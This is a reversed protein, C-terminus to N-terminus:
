TQKDDNLLTKIRAKINEFTATLQNKGVETLLSTHALADRLPKYEKAKNSISANDNKNKDVMNALYNMDLYLTDNNNRRIDISLGAKQKNESEQKKYKESEKQAEDTLQISKDAIYKRLLNESIFCEGYSTFNYQADEGLQNVWNDVKKNYDSSEKPRVYDESIVDFLEKSKRQKKTIRTNESDGDQKNKVRWEDWREIIKPFINTKLEELLSQYLNDDPVIGERSSTFRDKDDDLINFHIQGYLYNEVIRATSINNIMNKERLRGNVFLDVGVKEDTSLVKLNTPKKVSAIFGKIQLNSQINTSELVRSALLQIFADEMDNIKWLFQTNDSLKNLHNITIQEGNFFINFSNDILSFRFYLAIVFKLYDETNKIGDKINEFYIITGCNHETTYSEFLKDNTQELQYKTPTLDETIAKDLGSNDIIGGVYNTNATKTMIHVKDACSLLALKGIGKRGIFPRKKLTESVGDKRKSYGITLFKESFDEATMGIGDDKVVLYNEKKNLYIWVNNADADWSNSIAEGLVTIFSRYLNRGLHNLISLSINFTFKNM